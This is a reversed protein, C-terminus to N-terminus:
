TRAVGVACSALNYGYTPVRTRQFTRGGLPSVSAYDLTESTLVPMSMPTSFHKPQAAVFRSSWGHAPETSICIWRMQSVLQAPKCLSRWDGM